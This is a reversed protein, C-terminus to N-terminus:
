NWSMLYTFGVLASGGAIFQRSELKVKILILVIFM